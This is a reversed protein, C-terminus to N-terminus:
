ANDCDSDFIEDTAGDTQQAHLTDLNTIIEQIRTIYEKDTSSLTTLYSTLTAKLITRADSDDLWARLARDKRGAYAAFVGLKLNKQALKDRDPLDRAANLFDQVATAFRVQHAPHIPSEISWVIRHMTDVAKYPLDGSCCSEIYESLTDLKAGTCRAFVLSIMQRRNGDNVEEMAAAPITMSTEAPFHPDNFTSITERQDSLMSASAFAGFFCSKALAIVSPTLLPVSTQAVTQIVKEFFLLYVPSPPGSLCLLRWVATLSNTRYDVSPPIGLKAGLEFNISLPIANWASESLACTLGSVAFDYNRTNIYDFVRPWLLIEAEEPHWYSVITSFVDDLWHEYPETQFLNRHTWMMTDLADLLTRHFKM